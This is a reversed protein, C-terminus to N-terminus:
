KLVVFISEVLDLATTHHEASYLGGDRGAYHGSGILELKYIKKNSTLDIDVAYVLSPQDSGRYYKDDSFSSTYHSNNDYSRNIEFLIKILSPSTDALKSELTFNTYITSGTVADLDFPVPGVSGGVTSGSPIAIFLTDLEGEGDPMFGGNNSATSIWYKKEVCAKHMWYPVAQPNARYTSGGRMHNTGPSVCVFLNQLFIGSVDEIWCVYQPDSGEGFEFGKSFLLELELGTNAINTTKTVVQYSSDILFEINNETVHGSTDDTSKLVFNYYNDVDIIAGISYVNGNLLALYTQGASKNWSLSVSSSYVKGSVVGTVSLKSPSISPPVIIDDCSSLILVAILIFYKFM